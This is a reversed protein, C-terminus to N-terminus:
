IKKLFDTLKTDLDLVTGENVILYDALAIPPAMNLNIIEAIDRKKAESDSLGRERRNKLREHRVSAPAYLALIVLHPFRDKLYEYEEWSRLGDLVVIDHNASAKSIRPECKIAYAAMGLEARIGERFSKENVQNKPLNNEKLYEDTLDGFRIVPINKQQLFHSAESKGVGPLGVIAIIAKM